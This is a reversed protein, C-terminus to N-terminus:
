ANNSQQIRTNIDNQIASEDYITPRGIMRSSGMHLRGTELAFQKTASLGNSLEVTKLATEYALGATTPNQRVFKVMEAHIRADGPAAMIRNAIENLGKMRREQNSDLWRLVSYGVYVLAGILLLPGVVMGIRETATREPYGAQIRAETEQCGAFVVAFITLVLFMARNM